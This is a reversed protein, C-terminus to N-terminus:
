AQFKGLLADWYAKLEDFAAQVKETTNYRDMMAYAPKKNIVAKASWKEDEEVEVYGLQFIFSKSEGPALDVELYHSAIPSWGHAM